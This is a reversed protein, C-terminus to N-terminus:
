PTTVLKDVLGPFVEAEPLILEVSFLVVKLLVFLTKLAFFFVVPGSLSIDLRLFTLETLNTLLEGTM